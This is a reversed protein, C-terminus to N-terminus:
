TVDSIQKISAKQEQAMSGRWDIIGSKADNKKKKLRLQPAM